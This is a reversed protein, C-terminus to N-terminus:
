GVKMNNYTGNLYGVLYKDGFKITYVNEKGAVAAVVFDAAKTADETTVLAGKDNVEGTAYLVKGGKPTTDMTLKYTGAKMDTALEPQM